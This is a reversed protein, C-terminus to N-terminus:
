EILQTITYDTLRQVSLHNFPTASYACCAIAHPLAYNVMTILKATVKNKQERIVYPYIGMCNLKTDARLYLIMDCYISQESRKRLILVGRYNDPRIDVSNDM